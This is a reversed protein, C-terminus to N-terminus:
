KFIIICIGAHICYVNLNVVLSVVGLLCEFHGGATGCGTFM